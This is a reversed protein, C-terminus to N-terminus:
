LGFTFVFKIFNYEVNRKDNAHTFNPSLRPDPEFKKPFVPNPM